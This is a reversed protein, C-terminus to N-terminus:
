FLVRSPTVDGLALDLVPLLDPDFYSEALTDLTELLAKADQWDATDFGENLWNPNLVM